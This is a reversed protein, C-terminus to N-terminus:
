FVNMIFNGAINMFISSYTINDSHNQLTTKKHGKCLAIEIMAKWSTLDKYYKYKYTVCM